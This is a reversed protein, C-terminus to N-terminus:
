APCVTIVTEWSRLGGAITKRGILCVFARHSSKSLACLALLNSTYNFALRIILTM